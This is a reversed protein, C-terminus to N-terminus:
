KAERIAKRLSDVFTMTNGVYDTVIWFVKSKEVTLEIKRNIQDHSGETWRVYYTVINSDMTSVFYDVEVNRRCQTQLCNKIAKTQASINM